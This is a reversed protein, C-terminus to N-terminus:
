GREQRMILVLSLASLGVLLLSPVAVRALSVADYATWIQTALTKFGTPSLLLTTPLEKVSNLFVLAMGGIVGTSVLPLTIRLTVQLPRLNLIRGVEEYRPNIQTLASSTAGVSLPLFRLNYGLVLIPLTQYLGPLNNSVFFVLSLAVVLGPLGSGLYVVQTLLRSSRSPSRVALIALPLAVIGAVTAALGSAQFTNIAPTVLDALLDIRHAGIGQALWIVLVSLPTLVGVSILVACFALAPIRWRRLSIPRHKRQSGRGTRYNHRSAAVRHELFLLGVTIAVLVLSLVAARNRDFSSTYQLYIVRTFADYRMRAVAGFDSLTYLASLLMGLALASRLQPLTIRWFVSWRNLGLSRATEELGPDMNLLASRVPLVVYPYTFLTITLWAGFFGYISPISTIGLPSLLQYLLGRPGFAEIFTLAGIYSPIVMPLLGAVLWFQRLPLHTRTILWAFTVGILTSSMVVASTLTVSNWIVGLTRGDLLYAWAGSGAELARIVLYVLPLLVVVAVIVGVVHLFPLRPWRFNLSSWQIVSTRQKIEVLSPNLTTHDIPLQRM